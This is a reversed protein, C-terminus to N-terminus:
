RGFGVGPAEVARGGPRRLLAALFRPSALATPADLMHAVRMFAIFADVDSFVRDLVLKTARGTLRQRLSLAEGSLSAVWLEDEMLAMKWPLALVEAMHAHFRAAFGDLSGRGQWHRELELGLQEAGLAAVTMGQGYRPNLSCLADGIVVCREVTAGPADFRRLRNRTGSFSVVDTVPTADRLIQWLEPVSVQRMQDVFAEVTTPPKPRGYCVLAALVRREGVRMLAGVLPDDPVRPSTALLTWDDAFPAAVEFTCSTYVVGADVIEEAAPAAGAAVLWKPARSSRGSADVILDARLRQTEGERTYELAGPVAGLGTLTCDTWLEVNARAEVDRVLLHELMPRTCARFPVGSRVKALWAGGSAVRMNHTLDGEPLGMEDLWTPLQPVLRTLTFLGGALLIHVHAGQPAHPRVSPEAAYRDRELITVQEFHSALVGAATLGAIGGGLVVAREGKRSIGAM